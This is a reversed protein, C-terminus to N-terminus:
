NKFHSIVQEIMWLIENVETNFGGATSCNAAQLNETPPIMSKGIYGKDGIWNKFDMMLLM